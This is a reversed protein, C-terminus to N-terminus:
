PTPNTPQDSFGVVTIPKFVAYSHPKTTGTDPKDPKMSPTLSGVFYLSSEEKSFGRL